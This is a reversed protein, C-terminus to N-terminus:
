ENPGIGGGRRQALDISWEGGDGTRRPLKMAERRSIQIAEDDTSAGSQAITALLGPAAAALARLVAEIMAVASM